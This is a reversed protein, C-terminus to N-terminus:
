PNLFPRSISLQLAYELIHKRGSDIKLNSDLANALKAERYIDLKQENMRLGTEGSAQYM